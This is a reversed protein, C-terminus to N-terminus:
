QTAKLDVRLLALPEGGPPLATPLLSFGSLLTSCGRARSPVAVGNRHGNPATTTYPPLDICILKPSPIGRGGLRMQNKVFEQWQTRFYIVLSAARSLM